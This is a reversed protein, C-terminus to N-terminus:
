LGTGVRIDTMVLFYSKTTDISEIKVESGDDRIFKVSLGLIRKVNTNKSILSEIERLDTFSSNFKRDFRRKLINEEIETKWDTEPTDEYLELDLIFKARYWTGKEIKLNSTIYYAGKNKQFRLVDESTLGEGEITPIYYVYLEPSGETYKYVYSTGESKVKDPFTEELLAGIDSNSRFISSVYRERNAKYHITNLSDRPASPIFMLGDAWTEDGDFKVLEAGKLQVRKLESKNYDDLESYGFFQAHVQTNASIKGGSEGPLRYDAFYIRSGFGPLTLDFVKNELLHESFVRTRPVRIPSGSDQVIEFYMDDSLNGATCEVYYTNTDPVQYKGGSEGDLVLNEGVRKPAVFGLIYYVEEDTLSPQLTRGEYNWSGLTDGWALYHITFNGSTIICDYPKLELYKTPKIKMIVRPCSGRFVSYMMDACHQIKSNMLTAKELSSEIMYSVNEVEGIYSAQALLQVLIDISEGTYGLKSAVRYYRTIYDQLNRM